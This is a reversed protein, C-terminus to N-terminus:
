VCAAVSCLRGAFLATIFLGPNIISQPSCLPPPPPHPYAASKFTHLDIKPHKMELRSETCRERACQESKGMKSYVVTIFATHLTKVFIVKSKSVRMFLM